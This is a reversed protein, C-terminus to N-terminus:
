AKTDQATSSTDTQEAESSSLAQAEQTEKVLKKAENTKKKQASLERM